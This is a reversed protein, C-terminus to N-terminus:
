FRASSVFVPFIRQTPRMKSGQQHASSVNRTFSQPAEGHYRVTPVCFCHACVIGVATVGLCVRLTGVGMQALTAAVAVLVHARHVPCRHFAFPTCVHRHAAATFRLGHRAM